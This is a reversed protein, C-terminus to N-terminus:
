ISRRLKYVKREEGNAVFGVYQNMYIEKDLEGNLCATMVDVQYLKLNLHAIISLILCISTFRVVPSFIKEYDIGERQTYDKTILRAKYRENFGDINRKVKLVWKNEIIKRGHSLDVFDWVQNKRMSEMEDQMALKWVEFTSFKM